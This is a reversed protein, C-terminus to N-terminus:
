DILPIYPVIIALVEFNHGSVFKVKGTGQCYLKQSFIDEAIIM